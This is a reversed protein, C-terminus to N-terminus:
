KANRARRFRSLLSRILLEMRDLRVAVPRSVDALLCAGLALLPMGPGPIVCFVIGAVLSLGAALPKLLRRFSSRSSGDSRKREYRDQFRHGPSGRKFERWREKWGKAM